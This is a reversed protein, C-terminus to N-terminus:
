AGIVEELIEWLGRVGQKTRSSFLFPGLHDIQALDDQIREKRGLAQQRSLKDTKTLVVIAPKGFHELWLLLRKDGESPDRRIDLITVVAKLNPRFRLYEEVMEGWSRKVEWPVRAYGYGPLDVFYCKKDVLFFNIAQTRGPRASTKAIGKRSVLTNILSSKGVNSRGAFAIEPGTPPPYHNRRYASVLFSVDM